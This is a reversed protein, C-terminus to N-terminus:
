KRRNALWKWPLIGAVILLGGFVVWTLTPGTTVRGVEPNYSSVWLYGQSIAARGMWVWFAGLVIAIVRFLAYLRDQEQMVNKIRSAACTMTFPDCAFNIETSTEM